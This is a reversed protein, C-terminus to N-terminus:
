KIYKCLFKEVDSVIKELSKSYEDDAGKNWLLEKNKWIKDGYQKRMEEDEYKNEGRYISYASMYAMRIEIIKENLAELLKELNKDTDLIIKARLETEDYKDIKFDYFSKFRNAYVDKQWNHNEYNKEDIPQLFPNRIEKEIKEQLQKARLLLDFAIKYKDKGRLEREWTKLALIAIIFVGLQLLLSFIKM